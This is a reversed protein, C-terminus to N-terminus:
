RSPSGFYNVSSDSAPPFPNFPKFANVPMLCSMGKFGSDVISKEVMAVPSFWMLFCVVLIEVHFWVLRRFETVCVM